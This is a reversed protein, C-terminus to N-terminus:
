TTHWVSPGDMTFLFVSPIGKQYFPYHDSNGRMWNRQIRFFLHEKSIREIVEAIAPYSKGGVVMVNKSSSAGVMDLNIMVRTQVLPFPPHDTYHRAGILGMEEAAFAIFVVSRRPKLEAEAFAEAVEMMVATGSANDNAGNFLLEGMRGVHDLHGGVVLFEDRLVPDDGEVLGIVNMTPQREMFCSKVTLRLSFPLDLSIPKEEKEIKDRLADLTYGTGKLFEDGVEKSIMFSSISSRNSITGYPGGTIISAAAGAEQAFRNKNSYRGLHGFDVGDLRPVGDLIMVAKGEVDVKQYDDWRPKDSSIGFGAFVIPFTGDVSGSSGTPLFDEGPVYHTWLTDGGHPDRVSEGLAMYGGDELINRDVDFAQFYTSDGVGFALGMNEFVNAVYEAAQIFGESGAARGNTGAGTFYDVHAICERTTISYMARLVAKEDESLDTTQARVFLSGSFLIGITFSIGFLRM